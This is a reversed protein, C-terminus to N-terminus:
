TVWGFLISHSVCPLGFKSALSSNGGKPKTLRSSVTIIQDPKVVVPSCLRKGVKGGKIYRSWPKLRFPRQVADVILKRTRGTYGRYVTFVAALSQIAAVDM